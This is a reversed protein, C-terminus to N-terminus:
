PSAKRTVYFFDRQSKDHVYQGESFEFNKTLPIPVLKGGEGKEYTLFKPYSFNVDLQAVAHAGAHHLAEAIAKGTVHNGIGVFAITAAENLGIASRRIVTTGSVASAGWGMSPMSLAPHPKGEDYMCIPTQRWWLMDDARDKVADWDRILYRGDKMRAVVCALPRGPQLVVGDVMMGYDGHTSKYGGNFAAVLDDFASDPVKAPREYKKAEPTVSKPEYKGAVAHIDLSSLDLALIAVVAWSRQKDPHLFTKLIRVRDDPKRPDILPLWVGDGETALNEFMPALPALTFAPIEPAASASPAAVVATASPPVEWMEEPPADSRTGRMLWDQIGYAIDELRAVFANGFVARLTDAGFEGFGPVKHAAIWLVLMLAVFGGCGIGLRRGWRKRPPAKSASSPAEVDKTPQEEEKADETAATM